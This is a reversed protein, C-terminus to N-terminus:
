FWYHIGIGIAGFAYKPDPISSFSLNLDAELHRGLPKAIGASLRYGWAADEGSPKYLGAGVGVFPNWGDSFIGQPTYVGSLSAGLINFDPQFDYYGGVLELGFKQNFRYALDIEAYYSPKYLSDLQGVPIDVGAHVSLGWPYKAYPGDFGRARGKYILEDALYLQLPPNSRKDSFYVTYAGDCDDEVKNQYQPGKVKIANGFGPGVYRTNGQPDVYSPRFSLRYYYYPPDKTGGEVEHSSRNLDVEGFRVNLTQEKMREIQSSDTALAKIWYIIKYVGAVKLGDFEGEYVGNGKHKLVITDSLTQKLKALAGPNKNVLYGYKRAACPGTETSSPPVNPVSARALLDGIDDGPQLIIAQVDADTIPKQHQSLHVTPCIKDGVKVKEDTLGGKFDVSHDDATAFLRVSASVQGNPFVKFTWNGGAPLEPQNFLNFVLTTIYDRRVIEAYKTVEVGNKLVVVSCQRAVPLDFFAEFITRNVYNNCPVTFQVTDGDMRRRDFRIIQPSADVFIESFAQSALNPAFDQPNAVMINFYHNLDDAINGLNLGGQPTMVVGSSFFEIPNINPSIDDLEMAPSTDLESVQVVRGPNPIGERVFNGVNQEGDTFLFVMQRRSPSAAGGLRNNVSEVLGLGISTGDRGLHPSEVSSMDADINNRFNVVDTLASGIQSGPTISGSFYVVGMRDGTFGPHDELIRNTDQSSSWKSVFINVADKLMDWRTGDGSAADGDTDGTSCGPWDADSNEDYDCEMSGSRDLAFVIDYPMRNIFHFVRSRPTAGGPGSGTAQIEFYYDGEVIASSATIQISKTAATSHFTARLRSDTGGHIIDVVDGDNVGLFAGVNNLRYFWSLSAPPTSVTITFEGASINNRGIQFHKVYESQAGATGWDLTQAAAQPAFIAIIGLLWLSRQNKM